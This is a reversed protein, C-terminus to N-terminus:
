ETTPRSLCTGLEQGRSIQLVVDLGRLQRSVEYFSWSSLRQDDEEDDLTPKERHELAPKSLM